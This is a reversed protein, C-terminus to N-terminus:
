RVGFERERLSRADSGGYEEKCYRGLYGSGARLFCIKQEPSQTAVSGRGEANMSSKREYLEYLKLLPSKTPPSTSLDSTNLMKETVLHWFTANLPLHSPWSIGSELNNNSEVRHEPIDDTSSGPEPPVSYAERTDYEFEWVPRTWELSNSMNAIYTKAGMVSFTKSDVQYVRYGSNLGTLPTISPGIYSIQLPKTIDIQTTDRLMGSNTQKTQDDIPIM